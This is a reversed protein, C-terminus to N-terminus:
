ELLLPRILVDNLLQCAHWKVQDLTSFHLQAPV